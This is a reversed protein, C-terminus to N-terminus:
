LYKDGPERKRIIRAPTGFAVVHPKIDDIVTAGAGIVTHEGIKRSHIVNAGLSIVSHEGIKVNGAVTAGPAITVFDGLMCDHDVSAKTNIICHKGIKTDNNIVVNPMIVTGQDIEVHKAIQSSPHIANIFIFNPLRTMIDKVKQSRRWNDGMAVLGKQIHKFDNLLVEMGGLIKYGLIEAGIIKSEDILGIINYEGEKEVIDIIVKSHGGSGFIVIDEM